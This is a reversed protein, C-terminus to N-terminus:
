ASSSRSDVERGQGATGGCTPNSVAYRPTLGNFCCYQTYVAGSFYFVDLLTPVPVSLEVIGGRLLLLWGVAFAVVEIVHAVLALM